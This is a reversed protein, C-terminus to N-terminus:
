KSWQSHVAKAFRYATASSSWGIGVKNGQPNIVWWKLDTFKGQAMIRFPFVDGASHARSGGNSVLHGLTQTQM